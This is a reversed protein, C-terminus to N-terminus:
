NEYYLHHYMTKLILLFRYIMPLKREQFFHLFIKMKLTWKKVPDGKQVTKKYNLSEADELLNLLLEEANKSSTQAIANVLQIKMDESVAVKLAAILADNAKASKMTALAQSAPGVFRTNTLFSALVEISEEGGIMELQRIIFAKTEDHFEMGLAKKYTNTAELRKAEDKAM